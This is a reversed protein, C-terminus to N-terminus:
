KQQDDTKPYQFDPDVVERSVGFFYRPGPLVKSYNVSCSFSAGLRFLRSRGFGEAKGYRRQLSRLLDEVILPANM